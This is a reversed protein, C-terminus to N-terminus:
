SNLCNKMLRRFYLYKEHKRKLYITADNYMKDLIYIAYKGGYIVRKINSHFFGCIKNHHIGIWNLYGSLFDTTGLIELSVIASNSSTVCGDGDFYGRVFHNILNDPVINSNPFSLKFTKQPFCGLKILENKIKKNVISLCYSIYINGNMNKYKKRIDKGPINLFKNFLEVHNKDEEKLSLEISNTKESIYGDAYLFGLWYAKEESDIKKFLNEAYSYDYKSHIIRNNNLYRENSKYGIKRLWYSVLHRDHNVKSAIKNYSLGNNYLQEANNLWDPRKENM